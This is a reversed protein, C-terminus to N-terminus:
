EDSVEEINPLHPSNLKGMHKLKKEKIKEKMMEKVKKALIRRLAWRYISIATITVVVLFNVLWSLYLTWRIFEGSYM